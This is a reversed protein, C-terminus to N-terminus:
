FLGNENKTNEQQLLQEEEEEQEDEQPDEAHTLDEATPTYFLM